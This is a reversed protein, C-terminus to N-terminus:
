SSKRKKLPLETVWAKTLHTLSEKGEITQISDIGEFTNVKKYDKNKKKHVKGEKLPLETAWAKTLHTLSEKGKITQISDIRGSM